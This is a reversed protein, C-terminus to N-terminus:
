NPICLTLEGAGALLKIASENSGFPKGDNEILNEARAHITPEKPMDNCKQMLQDLLAQEQQSYSANGRLGAIRSRRARFCGGRCCRRLFM